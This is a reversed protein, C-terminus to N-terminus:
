SGIRGTPTARRSGRGVRDLVARAPPAQGLHGERAELQGHVPVRPTRCLSRPTAPYRRFRRPARPVLPAFPSRVETVSGTHM